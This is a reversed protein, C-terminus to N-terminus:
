ILRTSFHFFHGDIGQRLLCSSLVNLLRAVVQLTRFGRKLLALRGDVDIVQRIKRQAVRLSPFCSDSFGPRPLLDSLRLLFTIANLEVLAILLHLVGPTRRFIRLAARRGSLALEGICALFKLIQLSLLGITAHYHSQAVHEKVRTL